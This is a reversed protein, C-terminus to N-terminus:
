ANLGSVVSIGLPLHLSLSPDYIVTRPLARPDKGTKKVGGETIGYISTMESGSYTTPVALIPLAAELAMAKALGTTSGGGLAVVCGAGPEKVAKVAKQVADDPVHMSAQEHLSAGPEELGELGREAPARQRPPCLV